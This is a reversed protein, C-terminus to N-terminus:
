ENQPEESEEETTPKKQMDLSNNLRKSNYYNNISDLTQIFKKDNFTENLNIITEKFEENNFYDNLRVNLENLNEKLQKFNESNFYDNIIFNINVNNLYTSNNVILKDKIAKQLEKNALELVNRAEKYTNYDILHSHMVHNRFEKLKLFNNEIYDYDKGVMNQWMTKEEWSQISKILDTKSWKKSALNKIKEQISKDTFGAEYIQGFDLEEIKNKSKGIELLFSSNNINESNYLARSVYYAYRLQTEFKSVLPYLISCFYQSSGSSILVFQESFIKEFINTLEDLKKAKDEDNIEEKDDCEFQYIYIDTKPINIDNKSYGDLNIDTFEQKSFFM